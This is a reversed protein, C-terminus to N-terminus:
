VHITTAQANNVNRCKARVAARNAAFRATLRENNVQINTSMMQADKDGNPKAAGGGVGDLHSRWEEASRTRRGKEKVREAKRVERRM